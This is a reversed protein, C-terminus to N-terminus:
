DHMHSIFMVTLIESEVRNNDLNYGVNKCLKELSLFFRNTRLVSTYKKNKTFDELM